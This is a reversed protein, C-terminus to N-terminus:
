RSHKSSATLRQSRPNQNLACESRSQKIRERGPATRQRAVGELKLERDQPCHHHSRRDPRVCRPPQIGASLHARRGSAVLVSRHRVILHRASSAPSGQSIVDDPKLGTTWWVCASGDPMKAWAERLNTSLAMARQLVVFLKPSVM